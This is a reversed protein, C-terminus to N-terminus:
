GKEQGKLEEILNMMRDFREEYKRMREEYNEVKQRLRQNEQEVLLRLRREETLREFLGDRKNRGTEGEIGHKRKKSQVLVETTESIAAPNLANSAVTSSKIRLRPVSDQKHPGRLHQDLHDKRSFGWGPQSRSCDSHPCFYKETHGHKSNRFSVTQNDQIQRHVPFNNLPIFAGSEAAERQECEAATEQITSTARCSTFRPAGIMGGPNGQNTVPPNITDGTQVTSLDPVPSLTRATGGPPASGPACLQLQHELNPLDFHSDSWM